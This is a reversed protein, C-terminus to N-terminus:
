KAARVVLVIPLGHWQSYFSESGPFSEQLEIGVRMERVVEVKLGAHAAADLQADLGYLHHPVTCTVDNADKFSRTLGARAAEPHFDSYLLTGGTRLVRAIEGMWPDVATAHGLALGSVVSDFTEALFPLHMMSACVRQSTAIAIRSLMPICFDLSVAQAAQSELLMRTYRGSGCALDLVRCGNVDPWVDTMAQQEIRMLPNHAVPPYVPAWREYAQLTQKVANM